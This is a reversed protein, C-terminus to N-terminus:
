MKEPILPKEKSELNAMATAIANVLERERETLKWPEGQLYLM